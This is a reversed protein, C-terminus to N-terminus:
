DLDAPYGVDLKRGAHVALRQLLIPPVDPLASRPEPPGPPMEAEALLLDDGSRAETVVAGLHVVASGGHGPDGVEAGDPEVVIVLAAVSGSYGLALELFAEAQLDSESRPSLVLVDPQEAMVRGMEAPDIVGDGSVVAVTGIGDAEILAHTQGAPVHAVLLRATGAADEIPRWGGPDPHDHLAPIDPVIVTEAGAAAASAVADRLARLDEDTTARLGPQVVALRM